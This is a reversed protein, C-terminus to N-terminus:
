PVWDQVLRDAWQLAESVLGPGLPRGSKRAQWGVRPASLGQERGRGPFGAAGDSWGGSNRIRRLTALDQHEVQIRRFVLGQFGCSGPKPAPLGGQQGGRRQMKPPFFPPASNTGEVGPQGPCRRSRPSSDAGVDFSCSSLELPGTLCLRIAGPSLTEQGRFEPAALHRSHKQSWLGPHQSCLGRSSCRPSCLALHSSPQPHVPLPLYASSSGPGPTATPSM